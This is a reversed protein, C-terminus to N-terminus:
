AARGSITVSSSRPCGRSVPAPLSPGLRRAVLSSDPMEAIRVSVDFGAEVVDLTRDDFHVEASVEPYRSLFTPLAPAVHLVGFSMPANIRLSGRPRGQMRSVEAEAAELEELGRRSREHFARGAETLSLRRTTRNM